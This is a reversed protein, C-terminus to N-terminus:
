ASLTPGFYASMELEPVDGDMELIPALDARIGHLRDPLVPKLHGTRTGVGMRETHLSAPPESGGDSVTMQPGQELFDLRFM